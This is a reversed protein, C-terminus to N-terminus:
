KTCKLQEELETKIELYHQYDGAWEVFDASDQLKGAQYQAYFEESSIQYQQEYSLLARVLTSLADIPSRYIITQVKV